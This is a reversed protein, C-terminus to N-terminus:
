GHRNMVLKRYKQWRLPTEEVSSYYLLDLERCLNYNEIPDFPLAEYRYITYQPYTTITSARQINNSILFDLIFKRIDYNFKRIHEINSHIHYYVDMMKDAVDSSSIWFVDDLRYDSFVDSHLTDPNNISYEIETRLSRKPHFIVDPRIKVVRDYKFNQEIEYHRKLQFSKSTTYWVVHPFSEQNKEKYLQFEEIEMKLPKYVDKFKQFVEDDIKVPIDHFRPLSVDNITKRAYPKNSTIDWTHVFFDCNPLLDGIFNLINPAAGLATRLQGNFCIAIKM